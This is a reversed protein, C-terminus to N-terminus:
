KRQSTATSHSGRKNHSLTLNHPGTGTGTRNRSLIQNHSGTRNHSLTQNHSGTRSHSQTRNHSGTRNHSQTQNHSGRQNHSLVQSHIPTPPQQRVCTIWKVDCRRQCKPGDQPYRAAVIACNRRCAMVSTDCQDARAEPAAGIVLALGTFAAACLYALPRRGKGPSACMYALRPRLGFAAELNFMSRIATM